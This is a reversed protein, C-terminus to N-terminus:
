PGPITVQCGNDIASMRLIFEGARRAWADPLEHDQTSKPWCKNLMETRVIGPNLTVAAMPPPLEQALSLM